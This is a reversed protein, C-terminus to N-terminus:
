KSSKNSSHTVNKNEKIKKIAESFIKKNEVLFKSIEDVRISMEKLKDATINESKKNNHVLKNIFQRNKDWWNKIKEDNVEKIKTNLNNNHEGTAHFWEELQQRNKVNKLILNEWENRITHEEKLLWKKILDDIIDLKIPSIDTKLKKLYIINEGITTLNDEKINELSYENRNFNKCKKFKSWNKFWGLNSFNDIDRYSLNYKLYAYDYDIWTLFKNIDALFRKQDKADIDLVTKVTQEQNKEDVLKVIDAVDSALVEDILIFLNLVENDIYGWLKAYEKICLLLKNYSTKLNISKVIVNKHLSQNKLSAWAINDLHDCLYVLFDDYAINKKYLTNVNCSENDLKFVTNAFAVCYYEKKNEYNSIMFLQSDKNVWMDTKVNIFEDVHVLEDQINIDNSAFLSKDDGYNFDNSAFFNNNIQEVWNFFVNYQNNDANNALYYRLVDEASQDTPLLNIEIKSSFENKSVVSHNLDFNFQKEIGLIISTLNKEEVIIENNDLPFFDEFISGLSPAINNIKDNWYDNFENSKEKSVSNKVTLYRESNLGSILLFPIVIKGKIIKSKDALFYFQNNDLLKKINENVTIDNFKLNNIDYVFDKTINAVVITKTKVLQNFAHEFLILNDKKVKYQETIKEGILEYSRINLKNYYTLLLLLRGVIGFIKQKQATERQFTAGWYPLIFRFKM